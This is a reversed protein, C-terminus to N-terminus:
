MRQEVWERCMGLWWGAVMVAGQRRVYSWATVAAAVSDRGGGAGTASTPLAGRCRDPAACLSVLWGSRFCPALRQVVAAGGM